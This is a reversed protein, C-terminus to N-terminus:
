ILSGVIAVILLLWCTRSAVFRPGPANFLAVDIGVYVNSVPRMTTDAAIRVILTSQAAAEIPVLAVALLVLGAPKM